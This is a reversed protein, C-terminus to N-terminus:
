RRGGVMIGNAGYSPGQIGFVGGVAAPLNAPSLSGGTTQNHFFSGQVSMLRDGSMGSGAFVNGGMPMTAQLGTWSKGDFNTNLSGSRNGFDWNQAFNGTVSRSGNADVATGILGGGYTATGTLSQMVTPSVLKGAVWFGLNVHNQQQSNAKEALDGLFFGWALHENSPPTPTGAPVWGSRVTVIRPPMHASPAQSM